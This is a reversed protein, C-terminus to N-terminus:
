KSESKSKKISELEDELLKIEKSIGKASILNEKLDKITKEQERIIQDQKLLLDNKLKNIKLESRDKSKQNPIIWLSLSLAILSLGNNIANIDANFKLLAVVIISTIPFITTMLGTKIRGTKLLSALSFYLAFVATGLFLSNPVPFENVTVSAGVAFVFSALSIILSDSEDHFSRLNYDSKQKKIMSLLTIRNEESTTEFTGKEFESLVDKDEYYKKKPTKKPFRKKIKETITPM